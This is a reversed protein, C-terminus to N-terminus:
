FSMTTCAASSGQWRSEDPMGSSALGSRTAGPAWAYHLRLMLLVVSMGFVAGASAMV